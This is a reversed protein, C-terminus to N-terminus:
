IAIKYYLYMVAAVDLQEFFEKIYEKTDDEDMAIYNISYTFDDDHNFPVGFHDRLLEYGTKHLPQSRVYENIYEKMSAITQM